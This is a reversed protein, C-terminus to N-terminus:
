RSTWILTPACTEEPRAATDYAGNEYSGVLRNKNDKIRYKVGRQGMLITEYFREMGTLGMYDGM